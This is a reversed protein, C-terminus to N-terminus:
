GVAAVFPPPGLLEISSSSEAAARLRDIDPPRAADAPSAIPESASRFFAEGADGPTLMGLLRARESTVLLAHPVGRPLFAFGGTGVVHEDGDLHVLLEGELVYVAEDCDPHLHLPTTKGRVVNDEFLSLTGGTEAASAKMTFVGGGAFWFQEGEDHQRIVPVPSTM